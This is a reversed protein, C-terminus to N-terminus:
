QMKMAETMKGNQSNIMPMNMMLNMTSLRTPSKSKLKIKFKRQITIDEEDFKELKQRRIPSTPIIDV